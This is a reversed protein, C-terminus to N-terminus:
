AGSMLSASRRVSVARPWSARNRHSLLFSTGWMVSIIM